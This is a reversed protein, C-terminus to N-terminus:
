FFSVLLAYHNVSSQDGVGRLCRHWRPRTEDKLDTLGSRGAPDQLALGLSLLLSVAVLLM